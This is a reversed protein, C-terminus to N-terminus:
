YIFIWALAIRLAILSLDVPVPATRTNVLAALVDGVRRPATPETTSPATTM